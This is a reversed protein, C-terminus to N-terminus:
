EDAADSTYLLCGVTRGRVHRERGGASKEVMLPGTLGFPTVSVHVLSPFRAAVTDVEIGWRSRQGADASEVLVDATSLLTALRHPGDPADLDLLVSHKGRGWARWHWSVGDVDFPGRHRSSCGHAPEVKVVEAGLDALVRGTAEALHGAIDVVRIDALLSM